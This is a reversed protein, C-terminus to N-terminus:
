ANKVVKLMKPSKSYKMMKLERKSPKPGKTTKMKLVRKPIKSMKGSKKGAEVSVVFASLLFSVVNILKM